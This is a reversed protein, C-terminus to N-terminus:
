CARALVEGPCARPGGGRVLLRATSALGEAGVSTGEDRGLARPLLGILWALSGGSSGLAAALASSCCSLMVLWLFAKLAGRGGREDSAPRLTLEATGIADSGRYMVVPQDPIMVVGRM